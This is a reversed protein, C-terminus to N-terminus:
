KPDIRIVQNTKENVFWLKGDPGLRLGLIGPNGTNIRGIEKKENVNYAIIEGTAHDSVFLRGDIIEIGSPETLGADIFVEWKAEEMEWHEALEENILQLDIKKKGAKTDMRLIRKNGADCIYLWNTKKDLVIHSPVKTSRKVKVETYRHIRGDSHDDNGPGHDHAFDYYVIHNNYGDYVWFSNNMESAIGMSFPSGHLMDLHSGNGGSPKAYIELDSSWLAPGAFTGGIHNADKVGSSTAFNGNESFSIGTPLSMFHWSNEDKRYETTQNDKGANFILVTSGGTAETGKNIIWLENLRTPNFDLDQPIAIKDTSSAVLKYEPISKGYEAELAANFFEPITNIKEQSTPTDEVPNDKKCSFVLICILNLLLLLRIKM